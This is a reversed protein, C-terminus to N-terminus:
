HSNMPVEHPDKDSTERSKTKFMYLTVSNEEPFAKSPDNLVFFRTIHTFCFDYVMGWDDGHKYTYIYNCNGTM